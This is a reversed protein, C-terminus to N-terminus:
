HPHRSSSFEHTLERETERERHCKDMRTPADVAALSM